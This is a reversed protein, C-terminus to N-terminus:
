SIRPPCLQVFGNFSSSVASPLLLNRRHAVTEPRGSLFLLLAGNKIDRTALPLFIRFLSPAFGNKSDYWSLASLAGRGAIENGEETESVHFSFVHGRSYIEHVVYIHVLYLSSLFVPLCLIEERSM